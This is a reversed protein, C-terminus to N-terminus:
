NPLPFMSRGQRPTQVLTLYMVLSMVTLAQKIIDMFISATIALPSSTANAIVVGAPVILALGLLGLVISAGLIRIRFGRTLQSSRRLVDAISGKELIAVPYVVALTLSVIIGPIICFLYGLGQLVSSIAACIALRGLKSLGWRFSENVRPTTATELVKMLAYVLAPAILLNCLWGLLLAWMRQWDDSADSLSLAKFIEFPTVILFVIKTILWINKAFLRLTLSLVHGVTFGRIGPLPRQPDTFPQWERPAQHTPFAPHTAFTPQIALNAGCGVCNEEGIHNVAGCRVCYTDLM